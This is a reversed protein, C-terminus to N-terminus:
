PVCTWPRQRVNKGHRLGGSTDRFEEDTLWQKQGVVLRRIYATLGGGFSTIGIFGFLGAIEILSVRKRPRGQDNPNPAEGPM